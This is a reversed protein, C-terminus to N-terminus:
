KRGKGRGAKRAWRYCQARRLRHGDATCTWLFVGSGEEPCRSQALREIRAVMREETAASIADKERLIEVAACLGYCTENFIVAAGRLLQRPWEPTDCMSLNHKRFSKALYLWARRESM